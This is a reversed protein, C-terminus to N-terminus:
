RSEKRRRSRRAPTRPKRRARPGRRAAELEAEVALRSLSEDWLGELWERLPGLQEKRARYYRHNGEWRSAVLGVEELVSLHQSIAGKTVDRFSRHIEGHSLERSWVLRLIERRRPAAIAKLLASM